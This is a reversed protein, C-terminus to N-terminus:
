SFIGHEIRGLVNEVERIGVATHAYDLPTHDDLARIPSKLWRVAEKEDDFVDTARFLLQALEWLRESEALDLRGDEMRRQLTRPNLRLLEAMAEISIGLRETLERALVTPLGASIAEIIVPRPAERLAALEAVAEKAAVAM